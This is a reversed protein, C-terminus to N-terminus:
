FFFFFHWHKWGFGCGRRRSDVVLSCVPPQWTLSLLLCYVLPGTKWVQHGLPSGHPPHLALRATGPSVTAESLTIGANESCFDSNQSQLAEGDAVQLAEATDGHLYSYKLFQTKFAKWVQHFGLCWMRLLSSTRATHRTEM